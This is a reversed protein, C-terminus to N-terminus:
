MEHKANQRLVLASPIESPADLLLPKDEGPYSIIPATSCHSLMSEVFWLRRPSDFLGSCQTGSAGVPWGGFGPALM